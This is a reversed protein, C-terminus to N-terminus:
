ISPTSNEEWLKALNVSQSNPSFIPTGLISKADASMFTQGPHWNGNNLFPHEFGNNEAYKNTNENVKKVRERWTIILNNHFYYNGKPTVYSDDILRGYNGRYEIRNNTLKLNFKTSDQFEAQYPLANSFTEYHYIPTRSTIVSNKVTVMNSKSVQLGTNYCEEIICNKANINTSHDVLLGVTGSGNMLCKENSNNKSNEIRLAIADMCLGAPVDHKFYFGELHINECNRITFVDATNSKM